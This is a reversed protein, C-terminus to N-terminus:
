GNGGKSGNTSGDAMPLLITFTSGPTKGQDATQSEVQITGGFKKVIGYSVALGLGTGEGVKKTTFFPEFIRNMHEPAIGHGTDSFATGVMRGQRFVRIRLVGGNGMAAIANNIINMFVQELQQDDGQVRPIDDAVDMKFDIKKTLLTNQVVEVVRRLCEPLDTDTSTREPIRSFALLNEVIRQANTGQRMITELMEHERVDKPTKELLIETLGLIVALPNNIEHAVGASLSGLSSLKEAQFLQAEFAKHETIDRSIVLVAGAQDGGSIVPRYKSDMWYEKDGIRVHDEHGMTESTKLVQQVIGCVTEPKSYRVVDTIKKGAAEEPGKGTLRQYYQNVSLIRGEQDVTYILDDASEILSRYREESRRLMAASQELDATKEKVMEELTRLWTRESAIYFALVLIAALIFVAQMLSHRVYVSHVADEVESIPAVVAVSWIRKDNAAGIHVPAYAILKEVKGATGRHWGSLYWSVGEEGELMKNQQLQNIKSFSIHPDRYSRVEFANQGIFEKELHYLFNGLDDIVWAYGSKGSRIPGVIRETLYVANVAFSLVGSFRYTPTPHAEDTSVQYVPVALRYVFGHESNEVLGPKVDGIYVKGKSEPARCWEFFPESHYDGQVEYGANVYSVAYERNGAANILSIQIVGYDRVTTLSIKMRNAWSVAEIYQISPSLSLTLLERKLIKFDNSLIGAAHRALELQQNNFDEGIIERMERATIYSLYTSGGLLLLIILIVLRIGMKRVFYGLYRDLFAKM